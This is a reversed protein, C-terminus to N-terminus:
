IFAYVIRDNGELDKKITVNKFNNEIFLKEVAKGQNYGIEFFVKGDTKLYKKVNLIIKRYFELGDLNDCLALKPEFNKVGEDLENYESESIYPPNSIVVDFTRGELKEFLNSCIFEVKAQNAAANKKAVKLADNSVDVATVNAKSEKQVAIAIAGSGTGIDLVSSEKSIHKLALEVLEETEARPILVNKNVELDYGYFNTKHFIYALPVKKKRQKLAFMFYEQEEKSLDTLSYVESRKVDLCLAVLWEAEAKADEMINKLSSYALETAEKRNM